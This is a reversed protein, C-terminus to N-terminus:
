GIPLKYHYDKKIAIGVVVSTLSSRVVIGVGVVM